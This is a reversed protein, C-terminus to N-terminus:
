PSVYVASLNVDFDPPRIGGEWVTKCYPDILAVYMAGAQLIRSLKERLQAPDDTASCLEIAIAPVLSVIKERDAAEMQNWISSSVLAGDPSVISSDPLRFGGSSDFAIFEHKRAWQFLLHTLMANQRSSEGGTPPSMLLQGKSDREVRWGPNEAATRVVDDDTARIPVHAIVSM